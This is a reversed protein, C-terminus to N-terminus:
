LRFQLVFICHKYIQDSTAISLQDLRLSTRVDVVVRIDM